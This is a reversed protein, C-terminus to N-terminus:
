GHGVGVFGVGVFFIVNTFFVDSTGNRQPQNSM